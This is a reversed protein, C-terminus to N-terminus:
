FYSAVPMATIPKADVDLIIRLIKAPTREITGDALRRLEEGIEESFERELIVCTRGTFEGHVALKGVKVSSPGRVARRILEELASQNRLASKFVGHKAKEYVYREVFHESIHEFAKLWAASGTLIKGALRSGAKRIALRVTRVAVEDAIIKSSKGWPAM